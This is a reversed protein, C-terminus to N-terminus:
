KQQQPVLAVITEGEEWIHTAKLQTAFIRSRKKDETVFSQVWQITPGMEHLVSCSKQSVGQLEAPSLQGAGPLDREIVYKPM